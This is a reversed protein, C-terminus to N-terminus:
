ISSTRIVKHKQCTYVRDHDIQERFNKDVVRTKTIENLWKKRWEKDRKGSPLKFIGIGKTRRNTSCGVVCCNEGPM